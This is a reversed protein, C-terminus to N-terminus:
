YGGLASLAIWLVAIAVATTLVTSARRRWRGTTDPSTIAEPHGLGTLIARQRRVDDRSPRTADSRSLEVALRAQARQLRRVARRGRRGARVGAYWRAAARREGSRLV